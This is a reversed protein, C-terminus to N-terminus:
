AKEGLRTQRWFEAMSQGPQQTVDEGLWRAFGEGVDAPDWNKAAQISPFEVEAYWFESPLGEDVHNVELKLGDPLQYTRRTKEILPKDILREIEDFKEKEIDFEVEQRALRGGSKICMVYRTDGGQKAEERIRVVPAQTHLYGQRMVHTYLLPLEAKPWGDNMWKREIEVPNEKEAM